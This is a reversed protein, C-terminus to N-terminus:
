ILEHIDVLTGACAPISKLLLRFGSGAAGHAVDPIKEPVTLFPPQRGDNNDHHQKTQQNHEASRARRRENVCEKLVQDSNPAVPMRSATAIATTKEVATAANGGNRRPRYRGNTLRSAAPM